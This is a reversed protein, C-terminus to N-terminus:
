RKAARCESYYIKLVNIMALPWVAGFVGSRKWVGFNVTAPGQSLNFFM